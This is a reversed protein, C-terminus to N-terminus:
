LHIFNLAMPWTQGPSDITCQFQWVNAIGLSEFGFRDYLSNPKQASADLSRDVRAFSILM